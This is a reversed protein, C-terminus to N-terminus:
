NVLGARIAIRVLGAVHHVGLKNMLNTRHTDVTRPSIFLREGIEKNGMGEALAALVEIERESLQKLEMTREAAPEEGRLVAEMLASAFHRQGQHVNRLALLLEDKGCNKVLYGDAGVAILRKVVAADEHMSLVVVRVEPRAKKIRETAEIGDMVPMDIDMLVVDVSLHLAMHLAEEGNTAVGVCEVDPVHALLETLGDTIIRHDDALLVHITNSPKL